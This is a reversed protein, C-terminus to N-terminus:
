DLLFVIGKETHDNWCKQVEHLWFTQYLGAANYPAAVIRSDMFACGAAAKDMLVGFVNSKSIASSAVTVAGNSGIRSSKVNIAAPSKISQWFGVSENAALNLLNDHYTDALVMSKIQAKAPAYLFLKQEAKPTHRMIHKSNVVTQYLESREEMRDSLESIRSYVWKIFPAFNGPQYITNITFAAPTSDEDLGCLANYETLLHVVRNTDNEDVIGGIFNVITSRALTERSQEFRDKVNQVIMGFFRVLEEPSSFAIKLNHNEPGDFLTYHDSYVNAGLFNTQLLDAKKIKQMDVSQGDGTPNSTETSDYQVPWKYAPDDEFSADAVALKRTYAGYEAATVELGKFKRNYPRVDFLTRGIIAAIANYIKENGLSLATTATAVFDSTNQAAISARGTAQQMIGNLITAAQNFVASNTAM